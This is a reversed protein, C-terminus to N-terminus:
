RIGKLFISKRLPLEEWEAKSRMLKKSLATCDHPSKKEKMGGDSLESTKAVLSETEGM